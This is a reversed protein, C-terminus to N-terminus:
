KLGKVLFTLLATWIVVKIKTPGMSDADNKRDRVHPKISAMFCGTFQNCANTWSSISKFALLYGQVIFDLTLGSLSVLNSHNVFISPSKNSLIARIISAAQRFLLPNSIYQDLMYFVNDVDYIDANKTVKAYQVFWSGVLTIAAMTDSTLILLQESLSTSIERGLKVWKM